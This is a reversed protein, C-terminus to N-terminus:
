TSTEALPQDSTCLLGVWHRTDSHPGSTEIILVGQGVLPHQTMRSPPFCLPTFKFIFLIIVANAQFYHHGAPVETIINWRPVSIGIVTNGTRLM